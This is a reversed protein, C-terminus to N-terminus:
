ALCLKHLLWLLKHTLLCTIKLHHNLAQSAYHGQSCHRISVEMVNSMNKDDNGDQQVKLFLPEM